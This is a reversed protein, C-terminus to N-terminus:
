CCIWAFKSIEMAIYDLNQDETNHHQMAPHPTSIMEFSHKEKMKLPELDM